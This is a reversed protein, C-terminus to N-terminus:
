KLPSGPSLLANTLIFATFISEVSYGLLSDPQLHESRCLTNSSVSRTEGRGNMIIEQIDM